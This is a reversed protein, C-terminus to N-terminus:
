LDDAADSTYLLCAVLEEALWAEIRIPCDVDHAPRTRLIVARRQARQGAQIKERGSAPAAVGEVLEQGDVKIERETVRPLAANARPLFFARVMVVDREHLEAREDVSASQSTLCRNVGLLLKVSLEFTVPGFRM